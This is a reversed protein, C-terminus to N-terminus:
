SIQVNSLVTNRLYLQTARGPQVRQAQLLQAYEDLVRSVRSRGADEYNALEPVIAELLEAYRRRPASDVTEEAITCNSWCEMQYVSNTSQIRTIRAPLVGRDLM